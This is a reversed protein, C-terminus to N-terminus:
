SQTKFFDRRINDRHGFLVVIVIACYVVFSATIWPMSDHISLLIWILPSCALALLGSMTTRRLFLLFFISLLFGALLVLPQLFLMGGAFTAFGKGGRFSLQLPWIHGCIAGLLALADIWSAVSFQHAIWVAAFGKGADGLLTILFGKTGLLRGVNRSGTGGSSLTRIDTASLWKVLYFGTNFCGLLYSIAIAAFAYM